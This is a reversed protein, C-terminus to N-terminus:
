KVNGWVDEKMVELEVAWDERGAHRLEYLMKEISEDNAESGLVARVLYSYALEPYQTQNHIYAAVRLYEPTLLVHKSTIIEITKIVAEENSYFGREANNLTVWLIGKNQVTVPAEDMRRLFEDWDDEVVTGQITKYIVVNNMLLASGPLKNAGDECTKIAVQLSPSEPTQRESEFQSACLFGWARESNPALKLIYEALRLNDGWIYSRFVSASGLSILIVSVLIVGTATVRLKKVVWFILSGIAIVVGLLPFYNRHEFALELGIVNSTVFHGCFFLLIGFTFLPLSNRLTLAVGLLGSLFLISMLTSFPTWLNRSVDIDDYFFRMSNPLPVIIQVLYMSLVRAQTLLREVSSFARGPYSEWAWHSPLVGLFYVIGGVALVSLCGWKLLRSARTSDARFRLVSFELLVLYLPILLADEKASFALISFLLVLLAHLRGVGGSMQNQRMRVYALLSLVVFLTSLTQMRQVVYLVSSVQLPHIAWAFGMLSGVLSAQLSSYGSCLLIGRLLCVVALFTAVHIIINTFKFATPNLGSRWYDIAFSLMALPRSSNGPEFSYMAYLLGNIDNVNSIHIARNHVINPLDDLVFGGTLGLVYVAFTTATLTLMLWLLWVKRRVM